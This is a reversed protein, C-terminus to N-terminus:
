TSAILCLAVIMPFFNLFPLFFFFCLNILDSQEIQHSYFLFVIFGSNPPLLCVGLYYMRKSDTTLSFQKSTHFSAFDKTDEASSYHSIDAVLRNHSAFDENGKNILILLSASLAAHSLLSCLPDRHGSGQHIHSTNSWILWSREAQMEQSSMHHWILLKDWLVVLVWWLTVDWGEIKRQNEKTIVMSYRPENYCLAQHNPDNLVSSFLVKRNIPVSSHPKTDPLHFDGTITSFPPLVTHWTPFSIDPCPCLLLSFLNESSFCSFGLTELSCQQLSKRQGKLVTTM